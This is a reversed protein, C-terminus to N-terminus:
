MKQQSPKHNNNAKMLCIFLYLLVAGVLYNGLKPEYRAYMTQGGVM